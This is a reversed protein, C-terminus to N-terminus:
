MSEHIKCTHECVIYVHTMAVINFFLGHIQPPSTPQFSRTPLSPFTSIIYILILIIMFVLILFMDCELLFM